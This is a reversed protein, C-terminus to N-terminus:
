LGTQTADWILKVAIVALLSLILRDFAQKSLFRAAWSGIPIGLFMPILALFALLLRDWTLIGLAALAPVQTVSMALFFIAITAIFEKRPLNLANLFTISVPASLGGAGQMVGGVFGVYPGMKRGRARSLHWNPRALRLGIYAFVVGALSAMLLPVPLSALLVSGLIAGVAGMVAFIWVFRHETVESRFAWSQWINTCLNLVSFIAVAMPLDFVIALVPVGVVPAGAGTAGKLFGGLLIGIFAFALSVPDM